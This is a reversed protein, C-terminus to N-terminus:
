LEPLAGRKAARHVLFAGTGIMTFPVILMFGVSWNYGRAMNGLESTSTSVAEKCNPCAVAQRSSFALVLVALATVLLRTKTMRTM